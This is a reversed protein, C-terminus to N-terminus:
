QMPSTATRPGPRTWIAGSAGHQVQEAVSTRKRAYNAAVDRVVTAFREAVAPWALTSGIRHAAVQAAHLRDPEALLSGLATALASSDGPEVTLGAGSRVIDRAYRYSASVVPCGAAVAFTLVGSSSQEKSRYPTLFVETAALL